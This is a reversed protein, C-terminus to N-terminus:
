RVFRVNLSPDGIVHFIEMYYRTLNQDDSRSGMYLKAYHHIHGLTRTTGIYVMGREMGVYGPYMYSILGDTFIDNSGSYSIRTAAIVGIAGGSPQRILAEAFNINDDNSWDAGNEPTAPISHITGDPQRVRWYDFENDFYGSACNISFVVPLLPSTSSAYSIIHHSKLSPEGWGFFEGHDRHLIFLDSGNNLEDVVDTVSPSWDYIPRKLENPLETGDNFRLPNVEYSDVTYYMSATYGLGHVLYERVRETTRIFIANDQGDLRRVEYPGSAGAGNWPSVLRLTDDDVVHDVQVFDLGSRWIRIRDGAQVDERFRTGSGSVDRSDRTFTITGELTGGETVPKFSEVDYFGGAVAFTKSFSMPASSTEYARIKEVVANAQELTDVPIRGVAIDPYNDEKDQVIAYYLDTGVALAKPSDATIVVQRENMGLNPRIKEADGMLLLYRITHVGGEWNLGASGEDPVRDTLNCLAWARANPASPPFVATWPFKVSVRKGSVFASGSYTVTTGEVVDFSNWMIRITKDAVGNNDLDVHVYILPSLTLDQYFYAEIYFDDHKRVFNIGKIDENNPIPAEDRDTYSSILRNMAWENRVFDKIATDLTPNYYGLPQLDDANVLRVRWGIDRKHEALSYAASYFDRHTIILLSYLPDDFVQTPFAEVVIPMSQITNGNEVAPLIPIYHIDEIISIPSVHADQPNFDINVEIETRLLLKESAPTFQVPYVRLLLLNADGVKITETSQLKDPYPTTSKYAQENKTFPPFEEGVLEVMLPQRPFLVVGEFTRTSLVELQVEPKPSAGSEDKPLIFSYSLFPIEPEGVSGTTGSGVMLLKHYRTGEVVIDSAAINPIKITGVFNEYTSESVNLQPIVERPDAAFAPERPGEPGLPLYGGFFLGAVIVVVVVVAAIPWKAM